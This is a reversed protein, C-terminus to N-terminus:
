RKDIRPGYDGVACSIDVHQLSRAVGQPDDIRLASNARDGARTFLAKAAVVAVGTLGFGGTGLEQADVVIAAHEDAVGFVVDNAFVRGGVAFDNSDGAAAFAARGTNTARHELDLEILGVADVHMGAAVK